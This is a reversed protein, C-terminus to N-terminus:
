AYERSEELDAICNSVLNRIMQYSVSDVEEPQEGLDRLIAAVCCSVDSSGIEEADAFFWEVNEEATSMIVDLDHRGFLNNSM